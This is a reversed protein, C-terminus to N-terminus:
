WAAPATLLGKEVGKKVDALRYHMAFAGNWLRGCILSLLVVQWDSLNSGGALMENRGM